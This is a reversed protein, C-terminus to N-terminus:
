CCGWGSSRAGFPGVLGGVVTVRDVIGGPRRAAIAGLPLALLIAFGLGAGILMLTNPLHEFVIEM